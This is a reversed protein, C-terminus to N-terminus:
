SGKKVLLHMQELDHRSQMGLSLGPQNTTALLIFGATKLKRLPELASLNLSFENLTLPNVQHGHAIAVKNIMGNREFFVGLNM